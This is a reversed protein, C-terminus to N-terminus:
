SQYGFYCPDNLELFSGGLFKFLKWSFTKWFKELFIKKFFNGLFKPTEKVQLLSFNYIEEDCGGM